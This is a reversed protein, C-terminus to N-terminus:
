NSVSAWDPELKVAMYASELAEVYEQCTRYVVMNYIAMIIIIIILTM